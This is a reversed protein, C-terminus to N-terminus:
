IINANSFGKSAIFSIQKSHHWFSLAFFLVWYVPFDLLFKWLIDYESVITSMACSNFHFQLIFLLSCVIFTFFSLLFSTLFRKLTKAYDINSKANKDWPMFVCKLMCQMTDFVATIHVFIEMCHCVFTISWDCEFKNIFINACLCIWVFNDFM